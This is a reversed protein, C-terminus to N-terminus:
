SRGDLNDAAYARRSAAQVAPEYDALSLQAMRVSGKICIDVCEACSTCALPASLVSIGSHPGGVVTLCEFPCYEVCVMCGNCVDEDVVPRLRLQRPVRQAIKGHHDVVAEIPCIEGCVGCDICRDAVM